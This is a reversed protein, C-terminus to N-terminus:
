KAYWCRDPYFDGYVLTYWFLNINKVLVYNEFDSNCFLNPSSQIALIFLFILKRITKFLHRPMLSHLLQKRFSKIFYYFIYFLIIQSYIYNHMPILKRIYIM